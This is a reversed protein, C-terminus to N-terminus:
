NKKVKQWWPPTIQMDSTISIERLLRSELKLKMWGLMKCSTSQMYTLYAHSLIYGQFLGKGIQFWDTTANGTRVTAEQDAYLSRLLCTLHEPRGMEKLIKWNKTIWVTLAKLWCKQIELLGSVIPVLAMYKKIRDIYNKAIETVSHCTILKPLSPLTTHFLLVSGSALDTKNLERKNMKSNINTYSRWAETGEFTTM